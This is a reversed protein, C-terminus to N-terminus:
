CLVPVSVDVLDGVRCVGPRGLVHRGEEVGGGHAGRQVGREGLVPGHVDRVGEAGRVVEGGPVHVAVRGELGDREERREVRGRGRAADGEDEVRAVVVRVDLVAARLDDDLVEREAARLAERPAGRRRPVVVRARGRADHVLLAVDRVHEEVLAAVRQGLVHRVLREDEQALEHQPVVRVPRHQGVPRHDAPLVRVERLLMHRTPPLDEIPGRLRLPRPRPRARGDSGPLLEDRGGSPASSRRARGSRHM